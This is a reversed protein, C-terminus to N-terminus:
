DDARALSPMAGRSLAELEGWTLTCCYTAGEGGLYGNLAIGTDVGDLRLAVDVLREPDPDHEHIVCIAADREDYVALDIDGYDREFDVTDRSAYLGLSRELDLRRNCAASLRGGDMRITGVLAYLGVDLSGEDAMQARVDEDPRLAFLWAGGLHRENLLLAGEPIDIAPRILAAQQGDRKLYDLYAEGHLQEAVIRAAADGTEEASWYPTFSAQFDANPREAVLASLWDDPVRIVVTGGRAVAEVGPYQVADPVCAPCPCLGKDYVANDFDIATLAGNALGCNPADHYYFDFFGAWVTEAAGAVGCAMALLACMAVLWRRRRTM